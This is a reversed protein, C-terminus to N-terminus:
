LGRRRSKAIVETIPEVVKAAQLSLLNQYAIDRETVTKDTLPRIEAIAKGHKYITAPEGTQTVRNVIRSAEKNIEVMTVKM